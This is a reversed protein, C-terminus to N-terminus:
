AKYLISKDTMNLRQKNNQIFKRRLHNFSNYPILKDYHLRGVVISPSIDLKKAFEKISKETFIKNKIFEKYYKEPILKNSAFTDAEIEIKDKNKENIIDIFSSKKNHLLIHGLEHFFTFWFIDNFKYRLSLQIIAKNHILWRTAGNVYTNKLHPVIVVAIGCSACLTVLTKIFNEPKEKTLKRIEVISHLLKTKNFNETKIKRAEIVGQQLWAAMSYPNFKEFKAKRFVVDEIQPVLKLSEVGFFNLLNKVQELKNRTYPIWNLKAMELYPYNKLLHIEDTLRKEEKIRALIERYNRELNNWIKAPIGLVRELQLATEPTISKKGKIIENITKIPRNMREALEKQTMGLYKLNELLTYGPPIAKNPSYENNIYNKNIM